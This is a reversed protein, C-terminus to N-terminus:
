IGSDANLYNSKKVTKLYRYGLKNRIIKQITSKSVPNGTDKTYLTALKRCSIGIRNNSMLIKQKIYNTLEDSHTDKKKFKNIKDYINANIEIFEENNKLSHLISIENILNRLFEEKKNLKILNKNEFKKLQLQFDNESYIFHSNINLYSMHPNKIFKKKASPKRYKHNQILHNYGHKPYKIQNTEEKKDQEM